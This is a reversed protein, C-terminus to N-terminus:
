RGWRTQCLTGFSLERLQFGPPADGGACVGPEEAVVGPRACNAGDDVVFSLGARCVALMVQGRATQSQFVALLVIVIIIYPLSYLVDVVRMMLNDIRGGLYGAIAGYSVGILLSVLTSIIGVMLSIQGGQLVRALLDRGQKDTGM